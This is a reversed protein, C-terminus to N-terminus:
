EKKANLQEELEALEKQQNALRIEAKAKTNPKTQKNSIVKETRSINDRLRAIRKAIEMGRIVPDDSYELAKSENLLVEGNETYNDIKDWCQRKEDDLNCLDEALKKRLTDPINEISLESHIKAMLPVIEKTRNYEKQIDKPLNDYTIIKFGSKEAAEALEQELEKIKLEKEELESTLGEIEEQKNEGDSEFGQIKEELSKKDDELNKIEKVKSELEKKSSKSMSIEKSEEASSYAKPNLKMKSFIFSVKNILIPFRADFPNVKEEDEKMKLFESFTAKQDAAAFQNFIDLGECYDRKPNTLWQETKQIM